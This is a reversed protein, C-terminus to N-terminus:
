LQFLVNRRTWSATAVLKKMVQAAIAVAFNFLLIFKYLMLHTDICKFGEDTTTM